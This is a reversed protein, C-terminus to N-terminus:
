KKLDMSACEFIKEGTIIEGSETKQASGNTDAQMWNNMCVQLISRTSTPRTTIPGVASFTRACDSEQVPIETNNSM